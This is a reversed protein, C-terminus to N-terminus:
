EYRREKQDNGIIESLSFKILPEEDNSCMEYEKSLLTTDNSKFELFYRGKRMEIRFISNPVATGKLEFDCFVQCEVDVLIKLISAM